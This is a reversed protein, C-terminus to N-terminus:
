GAPMNEAREVLCEYSGVAFERCVWPRNEYITCSMTERDLAACWGDALRLMVEGGWQDAQLYQPPVGTDTLVM